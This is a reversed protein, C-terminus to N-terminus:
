VLLVINVLFEIVFIFIRRSNAHMKATITYWPVYLTAVNIVEIVFFYM